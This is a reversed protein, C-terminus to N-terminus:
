DGRNGRARGRRHGVRRAATDLDDHWKEGGEDQVTAVATRGADQHQSAHTEAATLIWQYMVDADWGDATPNFANLVEWAGVQAMRYGHDALIAQLQALRDDAGADWLALLDPPSGSADAAAATFADAVKQTWTQLAAEFSDREDALDGLSDPRGGKWARRSGAPLAGAPHRGGKPPAADASDPATDRPSALGGSVVNLPTILEDGGDIAPLNFRARGENRTLWPGGVATSMAAAQEEFSGRMKGAINFECYVGDPDPLDPLLQVGFEQEFLVLDPGLTDQYLHKHQERINSYTAHDLIGILPPPIYYAAACEERTLKRGEIYQAAKPDVGITNYTMGDELIPTGGDAGGGESFTRWMERFRRRDPEEWEAADAPRTLVGTMRAGNKWMSARQQASERSELLLDRLSEIPSTGQTLTDPTYGHIHIVQAPDFEIGGATEYYEPAIWNGKAPRILRPPVPLVRMRGNLKLKIGYANDYLKYDAVLREIFRYTSMGPLPEALVQALAHDNLRERDTDSLRRFVHVGLQAINRAVFGIVTRVQPQTRWIMEYEWPAAPQHWVPYHLRTVGGGTIALEGSSVVFSM